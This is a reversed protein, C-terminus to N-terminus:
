IRPLIKARIESTRITELTLNIIVTNSSNASVIISIGHTVRFNSALIASYINPGFIDLFVGDLVSKVSLEPSLTIEVGRPFILSRIYQRSQIIQVNFLVKALDKIKSEDISLTMICDDM